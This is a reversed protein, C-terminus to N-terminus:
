IICVLSTAWNRQFQMNIANLVMESFSYRGRSSSVQLGYLHIEQKPFAAIKLIGAECEKINWGRM